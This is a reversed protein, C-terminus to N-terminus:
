RGVASCLNIEFDALALALNANGKVACLFKDCALMLDLCAKAGCKKSITEAAEKLGSLLEDNGSILSLADRFVLKLLESFNVASAKDNSYPGLSLTLLARDSSLLSQATKLADDYLKKASPNQAIEIALGINGCSLEAANLLESKDTDPFRKLLVEYAENVAAPGIAINTVRSRVTPLLAGSNKSTFIFLSDEPPEEIMKLMANQAHVNMKDAEYIIFVKCNADNPKIYLNEKIPKIEDIRVTESKGAPYIKYVDPHIGKAIKSCPTCIGCPKDENECVLLSCIFDAFVKKGVGKDGTIMIAHSLRGAAHASRVSNVASDKGILDLTQM